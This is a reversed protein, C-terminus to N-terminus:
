SPAAIPVRLPCVVRAWLPADQGEVADFAVLRVQVRNQREPDAIDVVRALCASQMWGAAPMFNRARDM